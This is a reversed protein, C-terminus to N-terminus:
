RPQLARAHEVLGDALQLAATATAATGDAGVRGALAPNETLVRGGLLVQLRPNPSLSRMASVLSPLADIHCDCSVTLAVLDCHSGGIAALLDANSPDILLETGWGARAFCEEVLAPGFGQQDGPMPAFLAFRDPYGRRAQPTRDSIERLTEQMRWLAMTVDVFDLQDTDWGAGVIRAAPALLMVLLDELPTGARLHRDVEAVLDETEGELALRVFTAVARADIQGDTARAERPRALQTAIDSLMSETVVADGQRQRPFWDSRWPGSDLGVSSAM